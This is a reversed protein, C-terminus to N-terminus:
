GDLQRKAQRIEVALGRDCAVRRIYAVVRIDSSVSTETVVRRGLSGAVMGRDSFFSELAASYTSYALLCKELGGLCAALSM